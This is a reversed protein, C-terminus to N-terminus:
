ILLFIFLAFIPCIICHKNNHLAILYFPLLVYSLYTTGHLRNEIELDHKCKIENVFVTVQGLVLDEVVKTNRTVM